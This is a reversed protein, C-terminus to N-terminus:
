DESNIVSVQITWYYIDIFMDPIGTAVILM